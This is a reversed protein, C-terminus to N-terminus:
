MRDEDPHLSNRASTPCNLIGDLVSSSREARLKLGELTNEVSRRTERNQNVFELSGLKACHELYVTIEVGTESSSFEPAVCAALAADHRRPRHIWMDLWSKFHEPMPRNGELSCLTIAADSAEQAAVARLEPIELADMSWLSQDFLFEMNLREVVTTFARMARLGSARTDYAIVANFEPGGERVVLNGIASGTGSKNM